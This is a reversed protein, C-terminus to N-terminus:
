GIFPLDLESDLFVGEPVKAFLSDSEGSCLEEPWRPDSESRWCALAVALVLDDHQNERWAVFPDAGVTPFKMRFNVLEQVLLDAESITRPVKLRRGQLLLQLCTVLDKKPVHYLGDDGRTVQQGTTITVPIISAETISQVFLDVLTKGVATQDVILTVAGLGAAQAVVGVVAPVIATYPTGLTFRRLHRLFLDGAELDPPREMAAMATFENAQGLDLGIFYEPKM